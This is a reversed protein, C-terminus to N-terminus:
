GVRATDATLYDTQTASLYRDELLLVKICSPFRKEACALKVNHVDFGVTKAIQM